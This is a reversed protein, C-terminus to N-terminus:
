MVSCLMLCLHLKSQCLHNKQYSKLSEQIPIFANIDLCEVMSLTLYKVTSILSHM